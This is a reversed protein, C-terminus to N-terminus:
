SGTGQPPARGSAQALLEAVAHALDGLRFPKSLVRDVHLAQRLDEASKEISGSVVLVPGIGRTGNFRLTNLVFPGGGGPMNVDLVLLDPKLRGYAEIAGQTNIAEFVVHGLRECALRVLQRMPPEDDAVLIRAM